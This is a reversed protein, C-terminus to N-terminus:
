RERCQLTHSRDDEEGLASVVHNTLTYDADVTLGTAVVVSTNLDDFDGLSLFTPVADNEIIWSSAVITDGEVLWDSWNYGYRLVADPDHIYVAM